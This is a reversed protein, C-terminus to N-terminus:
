VAGWRCDKQATAASESRSAWPAGFRKHSLLSLYQIAAESFVGLQDIACRVTFLIDHSFKWKSCLLLRSGGFAEKKNFIIFLLFFLFSFAAASCWADVGRRISCRDEEAHMCSTRPMMMM